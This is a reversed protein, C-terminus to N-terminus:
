THPISEFKRSFMRALPPWGGGMTVATALPPPLSRFSWDTVLPLVDPERVNDDRDLDGGSVGAEGPAECSIGHAWHHLSGLSGWYVPGASSVEGNSAKKPPRHHRFGRGKNVGWRNVQGRTNLVDQGDAVAGAATHLVKGRAPPRKVVAHLAIIMLTGYQVKSARYIFYLVM